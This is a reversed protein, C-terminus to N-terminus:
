PRGARRWSFYAEQYGGDNITTDIVTGSSRVHQLGGSNIVGSIETGSVHEIGGSLITGSGFTGASLTVTGGLVTTDVTTGDFVTVTGGSSVVTGSTRAGAGILQQLGGSSIHTGSAFGTSGFVNELGSGLVVTGIATARDGIDQRGGSSVTTSSASGFVTIRDFLTASVITGGSSITVAGGAADLGNEVLLGSAVGGSLVNLNGSSSVTTAFATGGGQVIQNGASVFAGSAV